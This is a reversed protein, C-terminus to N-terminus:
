LVELTTLLATWDCFLISVLPVRGLIWVFTTGDNAAGSTVAAITVLVEGFEQLSSWTACPHSLM